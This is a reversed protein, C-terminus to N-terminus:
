FTNLLINVQYKWEDFSIIIKDDNIEELDIEKNEPQINNVFFLILSKIEKITENTM